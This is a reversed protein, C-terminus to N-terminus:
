SLDSLVGAYTTGAHRFPPADIGVLTSLFARAHLDGSQYLADDPNSEDTIQSQVLLTRRDQAFAPPYDSSNINPQIGNFSGLAFSLNPISGIDESFANGFTENTANITGNAVQLAPGSTLNLCSVSVYSTEM